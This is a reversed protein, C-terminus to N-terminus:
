EVQFVHFRLTRRMNRSREPAPKGNPILRVHEQKRKGELSQGSIFVLPSAECKHNWWGEKKMTHLGMTRGVCGGGM